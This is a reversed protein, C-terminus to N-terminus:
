RILNYRKTLYCNILSLNDALSLFPYKIFVIPHPADGWKVSQTKLEIIITKM